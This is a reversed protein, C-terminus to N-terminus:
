FASGNKFEHINISKLAEATKQKNTQKVYEVHAFHKGKLVKKRPPFLFLNSPTPSFSCPCHCMTLFQQTSLATHATASTFSRDCCPCVSLIKLVVTVSASCLRECCRSICQHLYTGPVSVQYPIGTSCPGWRSLSLEM